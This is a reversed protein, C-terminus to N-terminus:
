APGYVGHGPGRIQTQDVAHAIPRQSRLLSRRSRLDRLNSHVVILLQRLRFVPSVRDPPGKDTPLRKLIIPFFLDDIM